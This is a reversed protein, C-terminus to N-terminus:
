PWTRGALNPLTGAVSVCTGGARGSRPAVAKGEGRTLGEKGPCGLWAQSGETPSRHGRNRPVAGAGPCRSRTVRGRWRQGPTITVAAVVAPRGETGPVARMTM